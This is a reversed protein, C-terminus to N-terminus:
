GGVLDLVSVDRQLVVAGSPKLRKYYGDEAGVQEFHRKRYWELGDTNAEWVHAGVGTIGYGEVARKTLMDLMCAAIGHGRYPSLVVLTSLYLMPGQRKAPQSNPHALLKCRTAGVLTGSSNGAAEASDHWVAVLTINNTLPDEIIERYFSEPYPLPLLLSNLRKLRQIDEKRCSRIEVNAPLRQKGYHILDNAAQTTDRPSSIPGVVLEDQLPLPPTALNIDDEFPDDRIPVIKTASVQPLGTPKNLWGLLSSQPM